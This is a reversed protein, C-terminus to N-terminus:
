FFFFGSPRLVSLISVDLFFYLESSRLNVNQLVAQILSFYLHLLSPIYNLAQPEITLVLFSLYPSLLLFELFLNCDPLIFSFIPCSLILFTQLRYGLYSGLFSCAPRSQLVSLELLSSTQRPGLRPRSNVATTKNELSCSWCFAQIPM